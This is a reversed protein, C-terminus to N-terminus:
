PTPGLGPGYYYNLQVLRNNLPQLPRANTNSEDHVAVQLLEIQEKRVSKVEKVVTWTINQTCEPTTLSGMYRYYQTRRFNVIRPDVVGVEREAGTSNTIAMLDKTLLALFPDPILGIKYLVGIVATKGSPTQHVLHLELDLRKGDITHESPSHWHLQKLVYQTGNIQLYSSNAILELKIDHGRNKLTANSPHYSINLLGLNSVIQVTQNSLDIPSQMTGNKCMFWEPKIDGWHQPGKESNEDYNFESEDEVEQSMAQYSTLLLLTTVLGFILVLSALKAM